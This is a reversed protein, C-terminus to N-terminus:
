LIKYFERQFSHRILVVSYTTLCPRLMEEFDVYTERKNKSIRCDLLRMFKKTFIMTVNREITFVPNFYWKQEWIATTM